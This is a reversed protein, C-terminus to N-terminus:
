QIYRLIQFVISNDSRRITALVQTHQSPIKCKGSDIYLIDADGKVLVTSENTISNTQITEQLPCDTSTFTYKGFNFTGYHTIPDEKYHKQFVAPNYKSYALMNYEDFLVYAM